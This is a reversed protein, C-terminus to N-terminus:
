PAVKAGYAGSYTEPFATTTDSSQLFFVGGLEQAGPGYFQGTTAGSMNGLSSGVTSVNGSFSNAGAAYSLTPGTLNLDPRPEPTTAFDPRIETGSSSFALTRSAFNAEIKVDGFALFRFGSDPDVYFGALKGTFTAGDTIPINSGVTPAGISFAGVAATSATEWIGFTQYSYALPVPDAIVAATDFDTTAAELFGGGLVQILDLDLTTTPTRLVLNSWTGDADFTIIASSGTSVFSPRGISSVEQSVGQAVVTSNPQVTSWSTFSATGGGDGGCASLMLLLAFITARGAGNTM